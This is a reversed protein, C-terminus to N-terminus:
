PTGTQQVSFPRLGDTGIRLVREPKALVAITVEQRGILPDPGLRLIPNASVTGTGADLWQTPLAGTPLGDFAFGGPTSRWVVPIGSARSQGRAAELLAALRSAERELQTESPDRMAFSVGATAFAIISLVVLIELLTFGAARGLSRARGPRSASRGGPRGM